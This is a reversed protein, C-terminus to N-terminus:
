KYTGKIAYDTGGYTTTFPGPTTEIAVYCAECLVGGYIGRVNRNFFFDKSTNAPLEMQALPQDGAAPSATPFLKAYLTAGADTLATFELRLLEHGGDVDAWITADEVGTTYDGTTSSGTNDWSSEGNVFLDVTEASATYTNATTSVVFTAGVSCAVPDGIFGEGFPATGYIPWVRLPVAANAPTTKTDHLQLFKDNAAVKFGHIKTITCAAPHITASAVALGEYEIKM